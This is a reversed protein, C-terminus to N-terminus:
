IASGHSKGLTKQAKRLPFQQFTAIDSMNNQMYQLWGSVTGHLVSRVAVTNM